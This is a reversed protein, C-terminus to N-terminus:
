RSVRVVVKGAHNRSGSRSEAVISRMRAGAKASLPVLEDVINGAGDRGKTTNRYLNVSQESLFAVTVSEGVPERARLVFNMADAPLVFRGAQVENDPHYSNPFLVVAEDNPNVTVVNLYGSRPLELTLVVQEGVSLAASPATFAMAPLKAAMAELKRRTPGPGSQERFFLNQSLLEPSGELQPTHGDGMGAAELEAIYRAAAQQLEAPTVEGRSRAAKIAESVGLTFASGHRTAQALESDAAASLLVHKSRLEPVLSRARVSGGGYAAGPNSFYKPTGRENISRFSKTATGSHCADVLVLVNGADIDNLLAGFEDDRLFDRLEGDALRTDHLVLTEDRGDLEDGNDDSVHTGHGSFYLLVRDDEGYSADALTQLERRMGALTAEEDVLTRINRPRFGLLEAADRMMEVDLDIGPLDSVSDDRYEGVGVILARHEALAPVSLALATVTALLRRAFCTAYRCRFRAPSAAAQLAPFGLQFGSMPRDPIPLLFPLPSMM